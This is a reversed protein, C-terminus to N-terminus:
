VSPTEMRGPPQRLTEALDRALAHPDRGGAEFIMDALRYFPDRERVLETARARWDLSSALVPRSAIDTTELRRVIEDADLRLYMTLAKGRLRDRITEQLYAGGGLAMVFAGPKDALSLVVERELARFADEGHSAFYEAIPMGAADVIAQDSDIFPVSLADAVLAGLTTKGSAMMGLLVIKGHKM